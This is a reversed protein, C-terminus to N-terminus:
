GFIIFREKEMIKMRIGRGWVGKKSIEDWGIGRRDQEVGSKSIRGLVILNNMNQYIKKVKMMGINLREIMFLKNYKPKYIKHKIYNFLFLM